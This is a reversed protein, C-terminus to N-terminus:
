LTMVPVVTSWMTAGGATCGTKGDEGLIHDEGRGFRHLRSSDHFVLDDGAGLQMVDDGAGGSARDNGSGGDLTDSAQGGVLLDRGEGGAIVEYGSSGVLQDDGFGGILSDHGGWGDPEANQTAFIFDNGNGGDILRRRTRGPGPRRGQRWASYRIGAMGRLDDDGSGASLFDARDSGVLLDSALGGDVIRGGGDRAAELAAALIPVPVFDIVFEAGFSSHGGINRANALVTNLGGTIVAPDITEARLLLGSFGTREGFILSGNIAFSLLDDDSGGEARVAVAESPVVFTTRFFLAENWGGPTM